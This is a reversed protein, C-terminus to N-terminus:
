LSFCMTQATPKIALGMPKYQFINERIRKKPKRLTIHMRTQPSQRTKKPVKTVQINIYILLFVVM